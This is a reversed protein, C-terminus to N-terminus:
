GIKLDQCEVAASNLPNERSGQQRSNFLIQSGFNRVVEIQNCACGRAPDNGEAKPEAQTCPLNNLKVERLSRSNKRIRETPSGASVPNSRLVGGPREFSSEAAAKPVFEETRAALSEHNRGIVHSLVVDINKSRRVM